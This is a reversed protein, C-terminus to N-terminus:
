VHARGIEGGIFFNVEMRNEILNAFKYTDLPKGLVDLAVNYGKLYPEYTKTYLEQSEKEGITQAKAIDKNFIYFIQVKAFKSSMKIFDQILIDYNDKSPKLITYINIKM